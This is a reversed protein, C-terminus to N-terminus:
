LLEFDVAVSVEIRIRGAAITPGDVVAGGINLVENAYSNGGSAFAPGAGAERIVVARGVQQGLAGAMLAAKDRAAKMAATRAEAKKDALKSHSFRVERLHTAGAKVISQLLRELKGLDRVRAVLSRSVQFGHTRRDAGEFRDTEALSMMTTTLDASQIGADKLAAIVAAIRRDNDEVAREMTPLFTEVGVHVWAEDPALALETTGTVAITPFPRAAPVPSAGAPSPDASASPLALTLPLALALVAATLVHIPRM